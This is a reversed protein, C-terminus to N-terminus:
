DVGLVRAADLVGRADVRREYGQLFVKRVVIGGTNVVFVGPHPIGYSADGPAYAEDLVGLNTISTADIDSLLPFTIGYRDAFKQQLAPADYTLVVVGIGARTFDEM